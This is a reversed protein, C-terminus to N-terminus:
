AGSHPTTPHTWEWPVAQQSHGPLFSLSLSLGLLLAVIAFLAIARGPGFGAIHPPQRTVFLHVALSFLVLFAGTLIIALVLTLHRADTRAPEAVEILGPIPQSFFAAPLLLTVAVIGTLLPIGVARAPSAHPTLRLRRLLVVLAVVLLV